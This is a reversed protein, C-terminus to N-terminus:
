RSVCKLNLLWEVSELDKSAISFFLVTEGEYLGTTALKWSDYEREVYNQGIRGKAPCYTQNAWTSLFNYFPPSSGPTGTLYPVVNPSLVRKGVAACYDKGYPATAESGKIGIFNKAGALIGKRIDEENKDRFENARLFCVHLPREGVPGVMRCSEADDGQHLYIEKIWELLNESDVVKDLVFFEDEHETSLPEPKQAILNHVTILDSSIISRSLLKKECTELDAYLESL